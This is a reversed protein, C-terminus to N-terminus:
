LANLDPETKGTPNLIKAVEARLLNDVETTLSRYCAVVEEKYCPLDISVECRASEYNGMNLTAAKSVRVRAPDTVFPRVAITESEETTQSFATRTVTIQKDPAGSVKVSM